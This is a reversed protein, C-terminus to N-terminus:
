ERGTLITKPEYKMINLAPISMAGLTILYGITFLLVYEKVSVNVDIEDIVEADSLNNNSNNNMMNGMSPRGFNNESQEESMQLQSDLLSNSLAGAVITSTGISLIFGLTAVLILETLIQGIINKKTAGLSMLVGMEYKRDKINNNIILAIIFVAAIIVVILITSSFSGVSELPGAMQEYASNDIDLVLNMEELDYKSNAEELFLDVNEPNNLYYIVNNVSYDGDNYAEETLLQEVSEINMYINNEYGESSSLFIGIIEYEFVEESETNELELTSGIELDNEEALEYSIVVKNDTTEDFFTGETLEIAGTDIGPIFAYSNIGTVTNPMNGEGRMMNSSEVEILDFNVAEFAASLSYTYDLVYESNAIENVLEITIEPRDFVISERDMGESPMMGQMSGKIQEMNANLYIESGLSEKAYNTSEDVANSIALSALVLNAIIFMIIFLIVSKSRKRTINLWARKFMNKRM